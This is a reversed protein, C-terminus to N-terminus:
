ECPDPENPTLPRAILTWLADGADTWPSGILRDAMVARVAQAENGSFVRCGNTWNVPSELTWAPIEVNISERLETPMALSYVVFRESTYPRAGSLNYGDLPKLLRKIFDWAAIRAAADPGRENATVGGQLFLRATMQGNEVLTLTYAIPFVDGDDEDTLRIDGALGAARAETVIRAFLAADISAQQLEAIRSFDRGDAAIDVFTIASPTVEVIPPIALPDSFLQVGTMELLLMTDSAVVPAPDSVTPTPSVAIPTPLPGGRDATLQTLGFLVIALSAGLVGVGLYTTNRRQRRNLYEDM